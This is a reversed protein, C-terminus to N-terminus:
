HVANRLGSSRSASISFPTRYSIRNRSTMMGASFPMVTAVGASISSTFREDWKHQWEGVMQIGSGGEAETSDTATTLGDRGVYVM